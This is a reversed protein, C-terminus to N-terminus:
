AAVARPTSKRQTLRRKENEDRWRYKKAAHIMQDLTVEGQQGNLGYRPVGVVCSRLYARRLTLWRFMNRIVDPSLDPRAKIVDQHIGIKFPVPHGLDFLQPYAETLAALVDRTRKLRTKSNPM